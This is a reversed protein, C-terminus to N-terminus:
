PSGNAFRLENGFMRFEQHNDDMVRVGLYVSEMFYGVVHGTHKSNFASFVHSGVSPPVPGSWLALATRTGSLQVRVPVHKTLSADNNICLLEAFTGLRHILVHKTLSADNNISLVEQRPGGSRPMRPPQKIENMRAFKWVLKRRIVQSM